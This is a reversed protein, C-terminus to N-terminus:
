GETTDIYTIDSVWKQNPAPASFEQNLLNPAPLAGAERQTTAPRRKKRTRAGIQHVQMLCVVRKRSCKMGQRQLAAHIRPSGDTARNTEYEAQIKELLTENTRAQQSAPRSRWAYYGSRGVGLVRCMREIKFEGEHAAMFMYIMSKGQLFHQTSKKLIDREEDAEVL